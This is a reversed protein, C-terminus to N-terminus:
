LIFIMWRSLPGRKRHNSPGSKADRLGTAYRSWQSQVKVRLVFQSRPLAERAELIYIYKKKLQGYCLMLPHLLGTQLPPPNPPYASPRLERKLRHWRPYDM